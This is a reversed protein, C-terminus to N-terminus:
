IRGVAELHYGLDSVTDFFAHGEDREPGYGTVSQVVPYGASSMAKTIDILNPVLYAVHHLGHGFRDLHEFYLSPGAVPEILEVKPHGPGFAIRSSYQGPGGRYRSRGPSDETRPPLVLWESRPGLDAYHALAVDLDEVVIGIHDLVGDNLLPNIMSRTM